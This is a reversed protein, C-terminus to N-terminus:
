PRKPAPPQVPFLVALGGKDACRGESAAGTLYSGDKCRGTAGTVTLPNSVYNPVQVYQNTAFQGAGLLIPSYPINLKAATVSVTAAAGNVGTATPTITTSGAGIGRIVV